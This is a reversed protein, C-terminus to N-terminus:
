ISKPAHLMPMVGPDKLPFRYLVYEVTATNACFPFTNCGRGGAATRHMKGVQFLSHLNLLVAIDTRGVRATQLHDQFSLVVQYTEAVERSWNRVM